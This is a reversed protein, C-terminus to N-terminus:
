AHQAKYTVSHCGNISNEDHYHDFHAAAYYIKSLIDGSYMYVFEMYAASCPLLITSLM